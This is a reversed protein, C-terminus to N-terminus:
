SLTSHIKTITSKSNSDLRLKFKDTVLEIKSLTGQEAPEEVSCNEKKFLLGVDFVYILVYDEGISVKTNHEVQKTTMGVEIEGVNIKEFNNNAYDSNNVKFDDAQALIMKKGQSKMTFIVIGLLTPAILFIIILLTLDNINM